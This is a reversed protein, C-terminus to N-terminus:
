SDKLFNYASYSLKLISMFSETSLTVIYGSSIKVPKSARMMIIMLDKMVRIRLTTWDMEYIATSVDISKLSVENGYWCYLFIQTLMSCLYSFTYAFDLTFLSKMASLKYISMCLVLSIFSFQVFIMMTFTANVMYAFKYVYLHHYILDRIITKERVVLDEDSKSNKEAEMLLTPLMHARHCLIEFQACIQIMMGSILTEHAVSAHRDFKKKILIEEIDRPICNDKLLMMDLNIIKERRIFLHVIKCSVGFVSLFLYCKDIFEDLSASLVFTDVIGYFVFSQLLIFMFVSYTNYMWYKLSNVPFHVPRWYGTYSLLAFSVPLIHM